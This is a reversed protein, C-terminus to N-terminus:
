GLEKGVFSLIVKSQTLVEGDVELVPLQKTPSLDASLFPYAIFISKISM